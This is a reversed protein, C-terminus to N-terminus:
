REEATEGRDTLVSAGPLMGVLKTVYGFKFLGFQTLIGLAFLGLLIPDAVDFLLPELTLQESAQTVASVTLSGSVLTAGVFSTVIVLVSKTLFSGLAAAVIGVVLAGPYIMVSDGGVFASLLVLGAYVGVVFSLAAVAMSLLLYAAVLGAVIGIATAVVVALLEGLGLFDGITPAFLYGVGGGVMVGLVAVGYVSLAAGAFLLVLGVLIVAIGILEVM